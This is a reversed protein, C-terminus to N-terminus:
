TVPLIGYWESKFQFTENIRAVYDRSIAEIDLYVISIPILDHLRRSAHHM